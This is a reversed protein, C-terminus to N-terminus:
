WYRWHDNDKCNWKSYNGSYGDNYNLEKWLEVKDKRRRDKNVRNRFAKPVTYSYWKHSSTKYKYRQRDIYRKQAEYSSYCTRYTVPDDKDFWEPHDLENLWRKYYQEFSHRRKRTTRSM